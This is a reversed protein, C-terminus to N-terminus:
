ALQMVAAAFVFALFLVEFQQRIKLLDIGSKARMARRIVGM